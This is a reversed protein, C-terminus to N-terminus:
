IFVEDIIRKVVVGDAKGKLDKMIGGMFQNKMSIDPNLESKKTTVFTRIEDESMQAPLMAELIVLEGKEIDALDQRAGNEFQEISDRRQKVQRGIILLADEDSLIEDPKRKKSVLENTFASLLGRLVGLRVSDKALMAVKIQDRIDTQTSM